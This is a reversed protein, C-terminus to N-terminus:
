DKVDVDVCFGVDPCDHWPAGEWLTRGDRTVHVKTRQLDLLVPGSFGVLNWGQVFLPMPQGQCEIGSYNPKLTSEPVDHMSFSCRGSYCDSTLSVTYKGPELQPGIRKKRTDTFYFFRMPPEGKSLEECVRRGELWGSVPARLLLAAMALAAVALIAIGWTARRTLKPKM